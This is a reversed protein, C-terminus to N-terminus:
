PKIQTTQTTTTGQIECEPNVINPSNQAPRSGGAALANLARQFTRQNECSVDAVLKKIVDASNQQAKAGTADRVITHTDNVAENLNSVFIGLGLLIVFTMLQLMGMVLFPKRVSSMVRAEFLLARQGTLVVGDEATVVLSKAEENPNGSNKM